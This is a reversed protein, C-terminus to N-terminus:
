GGHRQLWGMLLAVARPDHRLRHGATPIVRLEAVGEAADRGTM